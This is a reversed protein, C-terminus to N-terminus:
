GSLAFGSRQIPLRRSPLFDELKSVLDRVPHKDAAARLDVATMHFYVQTSTIQRHGLLDRITVINVGALVLHTAFTHRLTHPSVHKTIGAAKAHLKVRQCITTRNMPRKSRTLFFAQNGDRARSVLRYENLARVVERNLPVVREHGGKGTVRVTAAIFDVDRNRLGACESARIGSGYLLTIIARDRLGLVTDNGPTAIFTTVETQTLTEKFRRPQNKMKPFHAMPNHEPMLHGMAVVAQYFRRIVTVQRNVASMGNRRERRLYEVYELVDRAVIADPAKDDLRIKVYDRFMKLTMEYAVLTKPRLGRAVCWTEVYLKIWYDWMM